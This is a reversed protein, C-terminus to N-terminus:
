RPSWPRAPSPRRAWGAVASARGTEGRGVIEAAGGVPGVAGGQALEDVRQGAHALRRRVVEALVDRDGNGVRAGIRARVVVLDGHALERLSQVAVQGRRPQAAVHLEVVAGVGAPPVGDCRRGDVVETRQDLRPAAPGHADLEDVLQRGTLGALEEQRHVRGDGAGAGAGQAAVLHVRLVPRRQVQM